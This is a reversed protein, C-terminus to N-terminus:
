AAAYTVSIMGLCSYIQSTAPSGAVFTSLLYEWIDPLRSVMKSVVRRSPSCAGPKENRISSVSFIARCSRVRPPCISGPKRNRGVGVGFRRTIRRRARRDDRRERPARFVDARQSPRRRRAAADVHEDRGGIQVLTLGPHGAFLDRRQSPPRSCARYVSSTCNEASSAVRLSGAEPLDDLGDDLRARLRDVQGVGDAVRRGVLASNKLVTM